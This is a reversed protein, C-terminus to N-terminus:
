IHVHEGHSATRLHDPLSVALIHVAQASYVFTEICTLVHGGPVLPIQTHALVKRARITCQLTSPFIAYVLVLIPGTALGGGDYPHAGQM